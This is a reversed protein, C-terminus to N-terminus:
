KLVMYKATDLNRYSNGLINGLYSGLFIECKFKFVEAFEKMQPQQCRHVGHRVESLLGRAAAPSHGEATVASTPLRM